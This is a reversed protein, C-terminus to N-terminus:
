TAGWKGNKKQLMSKHHSNHQKRKTKKKTGDVVLDNINTSQSQDLKHQCNINSKKGHSKKSCVNVNPLMHFFVFFFCLPQWLISEGNPRVYHLLMFCLYMLKHFQWRSILSVYCFPLKSFMLAYLFFLFFRNRHKHDAYFLFFFFLMCVDPDRRTVKEFQGNFFHWINRKHQSFPFM